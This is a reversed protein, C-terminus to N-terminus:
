NINLYQTYAWGIQGNYDVKTWNGQQGLVKMTANYPMVEIPNSTNPSGNLWLGVPSQVTATEQSNNTNIYENYAWGYQGNYEVYDWNGDVKYITVQSGNPIVEIGNPNNLDPNGNLWLGGNASITGTGIPSSTNSSSNNSSSSSSSNLINLYQTYAWGIQGNYDVKTWNGQRGLVKMTANHPMVEIPNSTNPSGNLWLGVPSQVTATEQNNTAQQQGVVQSYPSGGIWGEKGNYSVHYWGNSSTGLLNVITGRHLVEIVGDNPAPHENMCLGDATVEVKGIVKQSVQNGSAPAQKVPAQKFSSYPSGGIWGTQGKYTVKYWGNNSEATAQLKTGHPVVIINGDNAFPKENIWLGGCEVTVTGNVAHQTFTKKSQPQQQSQPQSSSKPLIDKGNSSTYQADLWGITGEYNVKYWGNQFALAKVPTGNPLLVINGSGASPGNTLWLGVPSTVTLNDGVPMNTPAAGGGLSEDLGNTYNGDIWGTVGNYYVKYWEGNTSIVPVTVGNPINGIVNSWTNPGAQINLSSTATATGIANYGGTHVPNKGTVSGTYGQGYTWFCTAQYYSNNGYTVPSQGNLNRNRYYPESFSENGMVYAIGKSKDEWGMFLFTHYTGAFCIDGRQLCQFDVHRTWGNNALWNELHTTYGIYYPM